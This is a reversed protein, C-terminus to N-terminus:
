IINGLSQLLISVNQSVTASIKSTSSIKLYIQPIKDLGISVFYQKKINQSHLGNTLPIPLEHMSKM